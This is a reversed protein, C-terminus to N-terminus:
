RSTASSRRGAEIASEVGAVRSVHGTTILGASEASLIVARLTEADLQQYVKIADYGQDAIWAVIAPATEPTVSTFLPNTPSPGDLTPGVTVIRPGRLRGEAIAQRLELHIPAGSMNVVLGIGYRLYSDLESAYRLHVHADALVPILFGGEGDIVTAAEYDAAREAPAVSTFLGDRVVVARGTLVTGSEVDVVAANKILLDVPEPAACAALALGAVVSRM